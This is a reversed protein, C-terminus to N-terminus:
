DVFLICRIKDTEFQKDLQNDSLLAPSQCCDANLAVAVIEDRRRQESAPPARQAPALKTLGRRSHGAGLFNRGSTGL